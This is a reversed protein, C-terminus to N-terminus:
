LEVPVFRWDLGRHKEIKLGANCIKLGSLVAATLLLGLISSLCSFGLM